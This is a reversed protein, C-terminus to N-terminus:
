YKTKTKALPWIPAVSNREPCLQCQEIPNNLGDWFNKLDEDSDFPDAPRYKKLLDTGYQDFQFQTTLDKSIATLHCKFLQGRVFVVNPECSNICLTHAAIPDSRRFFTVNNVVRDAANKTFVYGNWLRAVRRGNRFFHYTTNEKIISIEYVSLINELDSEISERTAPDHVCVDLFYNEDIIKRSLEINNKLHTGNTSISYEKCNPWYKKLELVWTLLDPNTYPEGGFVNIHDFTIKKSWEIYKDKYDKWYFHGKFNRNSFTVCNECTLNCVNTIYFVGLDKFFLENM